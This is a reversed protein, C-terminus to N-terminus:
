HLAEEEAYVAHRSRMLVTLSRSNSPEGHLLTGFKRVVANKTIRTTQVHTGMVMQGIMRYTKALLAEEVVVVLMMHTHLATSQTIILGTPLGYKIVEVSIM